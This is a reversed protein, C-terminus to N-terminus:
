VKIFTNLNRLTYVSDTPDFCFDWLTKDKFQPHPQCKAWKKGLEYDSYSWSLKNKPKKTFFSKIFLLFRFYKM